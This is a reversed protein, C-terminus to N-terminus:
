HRLRRRHRSWPSRRPFFTALRQQDQVFEIGRLFSEVTGDGPHLTPHGLLELLQVLKEVGQARAHSPRSPTSRADAAQSKVVRFLVGVLDESGEVVLGLCHDALEFGLVLLHPTRQAVMLNCKTDRRVYVVHL